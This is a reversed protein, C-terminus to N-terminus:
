PLGLLRRVLQGGAAALAAKSGDASLSLVKDRTRLLAPREDAAAIDALAEFTMALTQQSTMLEFLPWQGLAQQGRGTVRLGQFLVGPGSKWTMANWAVYDTDDLALLAQLIQEDGLQVGLARAGHGGALDLLGAAIEEDSTSAIAALVPLSCREWFTVVRSGV